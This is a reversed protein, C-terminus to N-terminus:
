FQPGGSEQDLIREVICRPVCLYFHIMILEEM